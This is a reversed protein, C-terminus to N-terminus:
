HLTNKMFKFWLKIFNTSNATAAFSQRSGTTRIKRYGNKEISRLVNKERVMVEREREKSKKKFNGVSVYVECKVM